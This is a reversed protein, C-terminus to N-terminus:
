VTNPKTDHSLKRLISFGVNEFIKRKLAKERIPRYVRRWLKILSPWPLVRTGAQVLVILDSYQM